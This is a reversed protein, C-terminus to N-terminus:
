RERDQDRQRKAQPQYLSAIGEKELLYELYTQGFNKTIKKARLTPDIDTLTLYRAETKSRMAFGACFTLGADFAAHEFDQWGSAMKCPRLLTERLEAIRDHEFRQGTPAEMARRVRANAFARARETKPPKQRLSPRDPQPDENRIKPAATGDTGHADSPEHVATEPAEPRSEETIRQVVASVPQAGTLPTEPARAVNKPLPAALDDAAREAYTSWAEGFRTELARRGNAKGMASLKAYAEGDTVIHGQGYEQVRFGHSAMAMQLEEWGTSSEFAEGLQAKLAKADGAALQRLEPRKERSARETEARHARRPQSWEAGEREQQLKSRVRHFGMDTEQARMTEDMRRKWQWDSWRDGTDPHIRNVALHLHKHDKDTHEFILAQHDELGMDALTRMATGMMDDETPEDEPSWSVTFHLVPKGCARKVMHDATARMVTSAIKPDTDPLNHAYRLGVRDAEQGAKGTAMYRALGGFGSGISLKGIM